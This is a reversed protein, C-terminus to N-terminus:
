SKSNRIYSLLVAALFMRQLSFLVSDTFVPINLTSKPSLFVAVLNLLTSKLPSRHSPIDTSPSICVGSSLNVECPEAKWDIFAFLISRFM